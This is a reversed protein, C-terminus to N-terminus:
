YWNGSSDCCATGSKGAGSGADGQIALVKESLRVSVGKAVMHNEIVRAMDPGIPLPLLQDQMEVLTTEVGWLDTLAESMEIGIAGGGIVVARDVRGKSVMEKIRQAHHLNAVVTVGPLDIGPIPPRIPTAGTALVLKDYTLDERHNDKLHRVRVSKRKRDISIAECATLVRVGKANQFFREDRVVHASTSQLGEIDAVDGGVYYPIGCGGYSILSDRDIMTVQASPLLRKVRCAVKPGLAVSGLILIKMSM